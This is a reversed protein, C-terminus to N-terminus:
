SMVQPFTHESKLVIICDDIM